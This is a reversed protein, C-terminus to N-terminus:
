EFLSVLRQWVFTSVKIEDSPALEHGAETPAATKSGNGGNGKHQPVDWPAGVGAPPAVWADARAAREEEFETEPIVDPFYVWTGTPTKLDEAEGPAGAPPSVWAGTLVM